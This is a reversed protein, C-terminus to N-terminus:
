AQKGEFRIANELLEVATRNKSFYEKFIIKNKGNVFYQLGDKETFHGSKCIIRPIKSKDATKDATM